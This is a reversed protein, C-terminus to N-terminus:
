EADVVRERQAAVVRRGVAAGAAVAVGTLEATAAEGFRSDGVGRAVHADVSRAHRVRDLLDEVRQLTLSPVGTAGGDETAEAAAIEPRPALRISLAGDTLEAVRVEDADAGIAAAEGGRLREGVGHERAPGDHLVATRRASTGEDHAGAALREELEVGVGHAREVRAAELHGDLRISRLGRGGPM